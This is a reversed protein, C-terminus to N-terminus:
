GAKGPIPRRRDMDVSELETSKEESLIGSYGENIFASMFLLCIPLGIKMKKISRYFNNELSQGEM